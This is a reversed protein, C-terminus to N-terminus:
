SQIVRLIRTLESAIRRGLVEAGFDRAMHERARRGLDASFGPDAVLRRMYYSAQELDPEAWVQGDAYPYEGPKVDVLRYGVLCSNGGHMFEMNGSYATGIVPKGLSMSEALGLGFGESRHLSVYADAVSELGFIEDRSLFRDMLTIRTDGAIVARLARPGDRNRDGNTSKLLLAVREDGVPFAARFAEVVAMPNKRAMFSGFDFTFLFVFDRDTLGFEDRRYARSPTADVALGITRVPKDTVAAISERVFESAVWIEDLRDVSPQWVSPFRSLEWFWLGVNYRGAVVRPGLADLVLETQDANVCFINIPHPAASAVSGALRLDQERATHPAEINVMALDIGSRRAAGILSRAAEAVGFEGLLYGVVNARPHSGIESLGSASHNSESNAAAPMAPVSTTSSLRTLYRRIAWRTKPSIRNFAWLFPRWTRLRPYQRLAFRGLRAALSLDETFARATLAFPDAHAEPRGVDFRSRFISRMANTIVSGDRLKGWSYPLQSYRQYGNTELLDVYRLYLPRLGGISGADFRNQHVSFIEPHRVDIGSFHVFSLPEGDASLSGDANVAVPRHGLNWYALNYGPRRLITVDPFMGPVLDVWKQDTFLGSELDVYARHELKDAWWDVLAARAPHPGTGIFGLNYVGVRLMTQEDPRKDDNLPATLHPTVVALAGSATAALVEVLPSVVYIDPDLYIIAQDSHREALWRLAFPKAATNLELVSYRFAFHSFHPVALDRISVLTFLEPDLGLDGRDEDALFVYRYANPHHERVSQMLTIAYALYNASVISFFVPRQTV